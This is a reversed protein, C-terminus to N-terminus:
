AATNKSSQKQELCQQFAHQLVPTQSGRTAHTSQVKTSSTKKNKHAHIGTGQHLAERWRVTRVGNSLSRVFHSNQNLSNYETSRISRRLIRRLASRFFVLLRRAFIATIRQSSPSSSSAIHPKIPQAAVVPLCCLLFILLSLGILCFFLSLLMLM